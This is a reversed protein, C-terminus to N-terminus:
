DVFFGQIFRSERKIFKGVGHIAADHAPEFWQYVVFGGLLIHILTWVYSVWFATLIALHTNPWRPYYDERSVHPLTPKVM